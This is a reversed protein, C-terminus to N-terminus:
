VWQLVDQGWRERVVAPIDDADPVEPPPRLVIERKVFPFGRMILRRWGASTPNGGLSTVWNWPFHAALVYGEAFALRSLGIEYRLILDRKTRELRVDDWFRSLVPETLVGDKYGVFHSQLHATDQTTGTIGWIDTPCADFGDLIPSLSEFPGVLSDNALVLRAASKARPYAHLLCAWSGFDYGVNPRRLVTVDRTLDPQDFILPEPCTAASVMVASYGAAVFEGLLVQASRSVRPHDSWHVVVAIKDADCAFEPGRERRLEPAVDYVRRRTISRM